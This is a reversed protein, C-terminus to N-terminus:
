RTLYQEILAPDFRDIGAYVIAHTPFLNGPRITALAVDFPQSTAQMHTRDRELLAFASHGENLHCVDPSLGTATLLRWGGIGLTLEQKLGVESGGGRLESTMARHAPTNAADNSDLLYLKVRGVQAQWARIWVSYGPLAVELKLWERSPLRLPTIPLQGPDNYPYL